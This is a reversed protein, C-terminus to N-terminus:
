FLKHGIFYFFSEFEDYEADKEQSKESSAEIKELGFRINKQDKGGHFFAFFDDRILIHDDVKGL